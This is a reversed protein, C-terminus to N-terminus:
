FGDLEEPDDPDFHHRWRNADKVFQDIRDFGKMKFMKYTVHMNGPMHYVHITGMNTFLELGIGKIRYYTIELDKLSVTKEKFLTMITLTEGAEDLYLDAVNISCLFLGWWILSFGPISVLLGVWGSDPEATLAIAVWVTFGIAQPIFFFRPTFTRRRRM